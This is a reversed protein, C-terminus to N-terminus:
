IRQVLAFISAIQARVETVELGLAQAIAPDSRGICLLALVKGKARGAKCPEDNLLGDFRKHMRSVM